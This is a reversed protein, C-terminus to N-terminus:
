IEYKEKVKSLSDNLIISKTQKELLNEDFSKITQLQSAKVMRQSLENIKERSDNAM